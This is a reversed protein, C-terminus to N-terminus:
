ERRGGEVVTEENRHKELKILLLLSSLLLSLTWPAVVNPLHGNSLSLNDFIM